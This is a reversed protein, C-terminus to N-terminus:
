IEKKRVLIQKSAHIIDIKPLDQIKKILEVQNKITSWNSNAKQSIDSITHFKEDNLANYINKIIEWTSKRQSQNISINNGWY